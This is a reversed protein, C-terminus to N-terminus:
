RFPNGGAAYWSKDSSTGGGRRDGVFRRKAAGLKRIAEFSPTDTKRLASQQKLLLTCVSHNSAPVLGELCYGRSRTPAIQASVGMWSASLGM